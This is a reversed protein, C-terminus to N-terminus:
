ITSPEVATRFRPYPGLLAFLVCTIAFFAAFAWLVATYGGTRDFGLGMLAPGIGGGLQYSALMFGYLRGFAKLGGYRSTFYGLIDFEAGIAMGLLLAAFYAGGGTAGLALLTLGLIPGLMFAIGVYPAHIRDMLWGAFVRGFIVAIGLMSAMQAAEGPAVGRDRLLPVLHATSGTACTGVLFSSIVMFWFQRTRAAERASYGTGPDSPPLASAPAAGGDRELGLDQPRDRILWANIGGSLVLIMLGMALYAERWGYRSIIATVILPLLAAGIGVGAMTFGLALGRRRDFWNMILKSFALVSTGAGFVAVALFAAYFHMLSDSLWCLSLVTLGLAGISPLLVCRVGLRDVLFGLVISMAMSTFSVITVAYSIEARQWGFEESLPIVFPGFAYIAITPWSLALAVMSAAVVWWGYFVPATAAPPPTM